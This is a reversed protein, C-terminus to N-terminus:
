GYPLLKKINKAETKFCYDARGMKRKRKSSKWTLLHGRFCRPKKVKGSKTIRFRKAAGKNTKMKMRPM